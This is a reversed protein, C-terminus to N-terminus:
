RPSALKARLWEPRNTTIGDVGAALLKRAQSPSDVTWIYLKLRAAHVKRTFIADVPGRGSVDLGDLGAQRAQEVLKEAGPSWGRLTRKFDAVWCVELAPLARKLASMTALSFGIPIVQGPERGSARFDHVFQPICEPGCKIEVFLRKGKPISALAEGLTSIRQGNWKPGKWKGVDLSKLEALTLAAIKRRVGTTRGTNDDHIVVVQGDKSFQVDIEVADAQQRWGLQIAAMTNEPADHSAGRHAIIWADLM